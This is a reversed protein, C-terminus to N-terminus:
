ENYLSLYYSKKLQKENEYADKLIKIIETDGNLAKLEKELSSLVSVVETDCKQELDAVYGLNDSVLKKKSSENQKEVPLKSYQDIVSRELAGLKSVYKAKLAYMRSVSDSIVKDIKEENNCGDSSEIVEIEDLKGANDDEMVDLPLHYKDSLEEFSIQGKFLKEEDEASLDNITSSTYEEVKTKLEEREADLKSALEDQSYKMGNILAIFNDKQWLFIGCCSILLILIIFLLAKKIKKM